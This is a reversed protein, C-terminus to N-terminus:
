CYGEVGIEGTGPVVDGGLPELPTALCGLVQDGLGPALDAARSAVGRQREVRQGFWLEEGSEGGVPLGSVVVLSPEGVDEAARHECSAAICTVRRCGARPRM